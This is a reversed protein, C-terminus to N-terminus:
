VMNRKDGIIDGGEREEVLSQWHIVVADVVVNSITPLLPDGQIVGRERRFHELYCGGAQMVMKLRYCYSRLFRLDRPGVGCVELIDLCRSSDLDDYSKHLDLFIARLVAERM